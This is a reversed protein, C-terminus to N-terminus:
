RKSKRPMNIVHIVYVIIHLNLFHSIIASNNLNVQSRHILFMTLAYMSRLLLYMGSNLTNSCHSIGVGQVLIRINYIFLLPLHINKNNSYQRAINEAFYKQDISDCIHIYSTWSYRTTMIYQENVLIILNCINWVYTKQVNFYTFM